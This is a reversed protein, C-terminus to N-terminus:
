GICSYADLHHYYYYYHTRVKVRDTQKPFLIENMYGVVLRTNGTYTRISDLRNRNQRKQTNTTTPTPQYITSPPTLLSASSIGVDFTMSLTKGFVKGRDMIYRRRQKMKGPFQVISKSWAISLKRPSECFM